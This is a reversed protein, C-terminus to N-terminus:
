EIKINEHMTKIHNTLGSKSVCKKDCHQCSFKFDETFNHVNALHLKVNLSTTAVFNCHNCSFRNGLHVSKIHKKLACQEIFKRDCVDCVFKRTGHSKMHRRIHYKDSFTKECKPCQLCNNKNINEIAERLEDDEMVENSEDLSEVEEELFNAKEEFEKKEIQSDKAIESNEHKEISNLNNCIEVVDLNKAVNIFESMRDLSFIAEGVYIFNIIAQMEEHKIGRLYIVSNSNPAFNDLIGKLVSSSACLIVKHANLQMQDDCVLTVDTLTSSEQMDFLARHLKVHYETHSIRYKDM